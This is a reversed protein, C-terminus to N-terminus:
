RGGPWHNYVMNGRAFARGSRACHLAGSMIPRAFSTCERRSRQSSPWGSDLSRWPLAALSTDRGRRLQRLNAFPRARSPARAANSRPWAGVLSPVHCMPVDPADIYILTQGERREGAM